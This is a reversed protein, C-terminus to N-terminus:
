NVDVDVFSKLLDSNNFSIKKSGSVQYKRVKMADYMFPSVFYTEGGKEKKIDPALYIRCQFNIWFKM